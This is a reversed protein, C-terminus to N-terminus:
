GLLARGEDLVRRLRLADPALATLLAAPGPLPMLAAHDGLM